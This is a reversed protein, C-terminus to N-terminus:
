SSIQFVLISLDLLVPISVCRCSTLAQFIVCSPGILCMMANM